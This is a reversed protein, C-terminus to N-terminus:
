EHSEEKKFELRTLRTKLESIEMEMRMKEENFYQFTQSLLGWIGTVMMLSAACAQGPSGTNATAHAQALQLGSTLRNEPTEPFGLQMFSIWWNKTPGVPGFADESGFKRAFQKDLLDIM